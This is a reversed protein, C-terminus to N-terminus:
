VYEDTVTHSYVYMNTIIGIVAVAILLVFFVFCVIVHLFHWVKLRFHGWFMLKILLFSSVISKGIVFLHGEFVLFLM